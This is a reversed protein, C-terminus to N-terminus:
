RMSAYRFNTNKVRVLPDDPSWDEHKEIWWLVRADGSDASAAMGALNRIPDNKDVGDDKLLPWEYNKLTQRPCRGM